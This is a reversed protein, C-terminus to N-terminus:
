IRNYRIHQIYAVSLPYKLGTGPIGNYISVTANPRISKVVVVLNRMWYGRCSGMRRSQAHVSFDGFLRKV